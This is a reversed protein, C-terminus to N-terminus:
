ARYREGVDVHRLVGEETRDPQALRRRSAAVLRDAERPGWTGPEYSFPATGMDLVPGVIRWQEEIADERAFHNADGRMADGLLREYALM